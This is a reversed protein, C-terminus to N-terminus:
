AAADKAAKLVEDARRSAAGGIFRSMPEDVKAAARQIKKAVDPPVSSTLVVRGKAQRKAPAMNERQQPYVRASQGVGM